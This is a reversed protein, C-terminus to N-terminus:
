TTEFFQSAGGSAAFFFLRRRNLFDVLREPYPPSIRWLQRLLVPM